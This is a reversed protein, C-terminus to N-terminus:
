NGGEEFVRAVSYISAKGRGSIRVQCHDCRRPIIPLTVTQLRSFRMTGMEEWEGNSDYQIHFSMVGGPAMQARVNFRSLYKSREYAYGFTGFTVSWDFTEEDGSENGVTKLVTNDATQVALVLEGDASAMFPIYSEDEKHWLTKATDLVYVHWKVAEDRMCLYYKDRYAGGVADFHRATGLAEGVAYPTAGDYAMVDHRSKYYLRENVVALSRWSGDQVGRCKLTNLTYNSPMTGSIKHLYDEKWFLPVGMLSYAGTFKGDSGVSLVYSDQSTGEFKYWNRFDGPACARIENTLKGDVTSYSCGWLRNNAECVYDLDPIKMEVVMSNSLTHSKRLLGAVIIYDEGCGYIINTTNLASLRDADANTDTTGGTSGEYTVELALGTINMTSGHTGSVTAHNKSQFDFKLNVTGNGTVEVPVVNETGERLVQGNMTLIKSGYAAYGTTFRAVAGKIAAGAPIGSVAVSKTMSVFGATTSVYNTGGQHTTKFSSYLSFDDVPFYLTEEGDATTQTEGVSRVGSLHAVDSEKLGKGIGTAQIKIYTTAVQIWEKYLDSYQKLVDNDGSTDLWLQQDAPEAPATASVTISEEDYNTGDKRCMMASITDGDAPTWKSGMSGSDDLNTTNFYVKDPWICVYAGMSVIHKPMMHSAASVKVPVEVGDMYVKEGACVILKDTGLMGSVADDYATVGGGEVPFVPTGRSKRTSLVPFDDSSMNLMDAMEGDAISLGRNLGAFTTTMLTANEWTPINPFFPM